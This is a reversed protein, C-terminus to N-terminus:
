AFCNRDDAQAPSNVTREAFERRISDTFLGLADLTAKSMAPMDSAMDVGVYTPSASLPCLSAGALISACDLPSVVYRAGGFIKGGWLAFRGVIVPTQEVRIFDILHPM